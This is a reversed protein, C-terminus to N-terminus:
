DEIIEELHQIEEKSLLTSIDKTEQYRQRAKKMLWKKTEGYMKLVNNGESEKISELTCALIMLWERKRQKVIDEIIIEREYALENQQPLPWHEIVFEIDYQMQHKQFLLNRKREDIELQQSIIWADLFYGRQLKERLFDKPSDLYAKFVKAADFAFFEHIKHKEIDFDSVTKKISYNSFFGAEKELEHEFAKVDGYLLFDSLNHGARKYKNILPAECKLDFLVKKWLDSDNAYSNYKAAGAGVSIGLALLGSYFTLKEM